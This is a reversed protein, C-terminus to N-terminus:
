SRRDLLYAAVFLLIASQAMFLIASLGFQWAAINSITITFFPGFNYLDGFPLMVINIWSTAAVAVTTVLVGVLKCFPVRVLVTRTVASWFVGIVILFTYLLVLLVIGYIAGSEVQMNLSSTVGGDSVYVAFTHVVIFVLGVFFAISDFLVSPLINGLLVKWSPVPALTILYSQPEKTIAKLASGTICMNGIWLGLFSLSAFTISLMAQWSSPNAASLLMFLLNGVVAVALMIVRLM